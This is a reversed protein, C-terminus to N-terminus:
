NKMCFLNEIIFICKDQLLLYIQGHKRNGNTLFCKEKEQIILVLSMRFFNMRSSLVQINSISGSQNLAYIM